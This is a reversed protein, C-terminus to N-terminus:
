ARLEMWSAFANNCQYTAGAPITAQANVACNFSSSVVVRSVVLGNVLVTAAATTGDPSVISVQIPQGTDNVYPTSAARSATMDQWTQVVGVGRAEVQLDDQSVSNPQCQSVGTDGSIQTTM